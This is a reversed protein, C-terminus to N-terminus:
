IELAEAADKLHEPQYRAYVASTVDVSTHGLYQSIKHMDVGAGAMWVAATHRLDHITVDDLGARARANWFAKKISKVPEGAWEVVYDSQRGAQATQLVARLRRTMPIKVARRKGRLKSGLRIEGRQLDVMDWTLMLLAEKRGATAIALHLFVELHHTGQAAQLLRSFERKTLSRDRPPPPTPVEVMAPTNRDHWRLGARLTRLDKGITGDSRGAKRREAVYARCEQRTVHEPNLHGFRPRLAKWCTRLRDVDIVGREDCDDLYADMIEGVTEVSQRKAADLIDRATREAAERNEATADLGTSLRKGDVRVAWKGRHKVIRM